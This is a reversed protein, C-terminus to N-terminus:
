DWVYMNSENVIYKDTFMHGSGIALIQGGKDNTYYAVVPRNFPYAITSTTVLVNSPNIVNITAGFPYLIEIDYKEDLLSQSGQNKKVVKLLENNMNECVICGNLVAEKPHFYKYYHQRVVADSNINMGFEELLFNINTDFFNEGNEALLVMLSGGQNIFEKMAELEVENFKQQPGAVIFLNVSKLSDSTIENKNNETKYNAKLKRNVTKYNDTLRFLENKSSDFLITAM